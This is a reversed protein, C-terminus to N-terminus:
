TCNRRWLLSCDGLLTNPQDAGGRSVESHQPRREGGPRLGQTWGEGLCQTVSRVYSVVNMKVPHLRCSPLKFVCVCVCVCM